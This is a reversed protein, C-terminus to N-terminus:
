APMETGPMAAPIPTAALTEATGDITTAAFTMPMRDFQDGAWVCANRVGQYTLSAVGVCVFGGVAVVATVGALVVTGAGIRLADQAGRQIAPAAFQIVPSLISAFM